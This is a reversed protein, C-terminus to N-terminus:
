ILESCNSIHWLYTYVGKLGEYIEIYNYILAIISVLFIIVFIKLLGRLVDFNRHLDATFDDTRGRHIGELIISIKILPISALILFFAGIILNPKIINSALLGTLIYISAGILSGAILSFLSPPQMFMNDLKSHRNFIM